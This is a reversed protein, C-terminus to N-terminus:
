KKYTNSLKKLFEEFVKVVPPSSTEMRSKIQAQMENKTTEDIISMDMSRLTDVCAVFLDEDDTDIMKLICQIEYSSGVNGVCEALRVKWRINENPIVKLLEEWKVESFGKLIDECIFLADDYWYDESMDGNLYENIENLM